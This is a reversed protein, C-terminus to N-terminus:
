EPATVQALRVQNGSPDRFGCDIGYPRSEPKDTFEVGAAVMANYDRQVDDTVLFVAGALGSTVVKQVLAHQEDTVVPATPIAMLAIEVDPQDRPGVTLWRFNPLEPFTWDSRLEFGVKSTWFALAVEQDHVWLNVTAITISM